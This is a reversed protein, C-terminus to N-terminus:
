LEWFACLHDTTNPSLSTMRLRWLACWPQRQTSNASRDLVIMSVSLDCIDVLPPCDKELKQPNYLMVIHTVSEDSRGVDPLPPSTPCGRLIGCVLGSLLSLVDFRKLAFSNNSSNPNRLAVM